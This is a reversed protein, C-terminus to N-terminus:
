RSPTRSGLSWSPKNGSLMRLEACVRFQTQVAMCIALPSLLSNSGWHGLLSPTEAPTMVARFPPTAGFCLTGCPVHESVQKAPERAFLLFVHSLYTPRHRLFCISGEVRLYRLNSDQRSRLERRGATLVGIETKAENGPRSLERGILRGPSARALFFDTMPLSGMLPPVGIPEDDRQLVHLLACM